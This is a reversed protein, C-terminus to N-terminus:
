AVLDLDVQLYEINLPLHLTVGLLSLAFVMKALLRFELDNTYRSCLRASRHNKLAM